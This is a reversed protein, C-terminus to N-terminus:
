LGPFPRSCKGPDQDAIHQAKLSQNSVHVILFALFFFSSLFAPQSCLGASANPGRLSRPQSLDPQIWPLAIVRGGTPDHPATPADSRALCNICCDLLLKKTLDQFTNSPSLPKFAGGQQGPPQPSATVGGTCRPWTHILAPLVWIPTAKMPRPIAMLFQCSSNASRFLFTLVEVELSNKITNRGLASTNFVEAGSSKLLQTPLFNKM